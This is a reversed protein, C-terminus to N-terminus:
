KQYFSNFNLGGANSASGRQLRDDIDYADEPIVVESVTNEQDMINTEDIIM